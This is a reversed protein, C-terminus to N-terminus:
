TVSALLQRAEEIYVSQPFDAIVKDLTQKAEAKKGAAAQVRGLQMLLADRPITEDGTNNVLSQATSIAKDYQKAEASSEVLGLQAMRGYFTGAGARDVVDQYRAAADAPRGLMALAAASYYRAALGAKTSPYADAAENFKALAAEARARINPYTGAAPKAGPKPEEIPSQIIAMADGLMAQARTESRSNWAWYGAAILVVLLVAGTILAVNRPNERLRETASALAQSLENEKLRHRETGKMVTSYLPLHPM